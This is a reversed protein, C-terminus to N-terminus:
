RKEDAPSSDGSKRPGFMKVAFTMGMRQMQLQGSQHAALADLQQPTLVTKAREPERQNMEEKQKFLENMKDESMMAQFNAVTAPGDVTTESFVPAMGKREQKMIELLQSTQDANLPNRGGAMQESFQNLTMREAMTENYDKYQTYRAAGLFAKVQEDSEKQQATLENLATTKDTDEGQLKLFAGGTEVAKMQQDLLLEKFKDTEEATLGLEKFLGGYMMDMMAGQQQRMMKKMEPDNMMKSLFGGFFGKSESSDEAAAVPQPGSSPAAPTAAPAPRLSQLEGTLTQVQRNLEASQRELKKLKKQDAEQRQDREQISERLSAIQRKLGSNQKWQHFCVAALVVATLFPFGAFKSKM